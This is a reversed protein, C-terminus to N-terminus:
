CTFIYVGTYFIETKKKLDVEVSVSIVELDIIRRWTKTM